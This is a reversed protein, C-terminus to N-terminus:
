FFLTLVGTYGYLRANNIEGGAYFGTMPVDGIINRIIKMEHADESKPEYFGRSICSIYLAAKPEFCGRESEVRRRLAILNHTLDSILTDESREVFLIHDGVMPHESISISGEDVDIGSINRVLYDHKDSQSLPLGVHIEGQFLSKFEEPIHETTEIGAINQIFKDSVQGTKKTTLRRLDDQLVDVARRDDLMLITNDDTKTITHLPTFSRCGQSLVTSVAVSDTFFAGCIANQCASNAIQYHQSRSSTVGGVIFSNTSYELEQLTEQPDKEAMPDAHVVAFIPMSEIIWQTLADYGEIDESDESTSEPFIHFSDEPLRGIMVSISPTDVHATGCGIVGMAVSGIWHDINLVSKFLNLISSVDDSLHDSVYLFGFNFSDERTRISELKELATKSIDRWDTGDVCISAFEKSTFLSM